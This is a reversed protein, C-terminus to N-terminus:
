VPPLCKKRPIKTGGQPYSSDHPYWERYAGGHASCSDACEDAPDIYLYIKEGDEELMCHAISPDGLIALIEPNVCHSRSFWRCKQKYSLYSDGTVSDCGVTCSTQAAAWPAAALAALLVGCAALRAGPPITTSM